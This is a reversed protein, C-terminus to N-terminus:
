VSMKNEETTNAKSLQLQNKIRQDMTEEIISLKRITKLNLLYIKSPINNTQEHEYAYAKLVKKIKSIFPKQENAKLYRTKFVIKKTIESVEESLLLGEIITHTGKEKNRIEQKVNKIENKANKANNAHEKAEDLIDLTELERVRPNKEYSYRKYIWYIPSIHSVVELAVMVAGYVSKTGTLAIQKATEGRLEWLKRKLELM